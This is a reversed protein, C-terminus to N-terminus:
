PKVVSAPVSAAPQSRIITLDVPQDTALVTSAKLKPLIEAVTDLWLKRGTPMFGTRQAQKLTVAFRRAEALAITKKSAAQAEASATIEAAEGVVALAVAAAERQADAVTRAAESVATQASEFDRRVENPPLIETWVVGVIRVGLALRDAQNQVHDRLALALRERGPGLADAIPTAALVSTLSAEALPVLRSEVADLGTRAIELPDAVRYDLRLAVNLLNADATLYESTRTGLVDSSLNELRVQRVTETPIDRIEGFPWPASWHLGPNLLGPRLVGFRVVAGRHGQPVQHFGAAVAVALASFGLSLLVIRRVSRGTM